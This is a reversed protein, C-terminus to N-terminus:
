RASEVSAGGADIAVPKPAFEPNQNALISVLKIIDNIEETNRAHKYARIQGLQDVVVFNEGHTIGILDYAMDSSETTNQIDRFSKGDVAVKFGNVITDYVSSLDGTLFTWINFRAGFKEAYAKLVHPKDTEPDVSISVLKITSGSGLIRDQIKAMQQTLLPCTDPCTTFVFNVVMVTGKFSSSWEIETGNQNSL